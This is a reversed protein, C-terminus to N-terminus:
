QAADYKKALRMFEKKGQEITAADCAVNGFVTDVRGKTWGIAYFLRAMATQGEGKRGSGNKTLKSRVGRLVLRLSQILFL